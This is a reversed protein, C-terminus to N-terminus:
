SSMIEQQTYVPTRTDPINDRGTSCFDGLKASCTLSSLSSRYSSLSLICRHASQKPESFSHLTFKVNVESYMRYISPYESTQLVASYLNERHVCAREHEPANTILRM